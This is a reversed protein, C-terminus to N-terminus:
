GLARAESLGRGARPSKRPPIGEDVIAFETWPDLITTATRRVRRAIAFGFDEVRGVIRGSTPRPAPGDEGLDVVEFETRLDLLFIAARRLRKMLAHGLDVMLDRRFSHQEFIPAREVEIMRTATPMKAKGRGQYDM